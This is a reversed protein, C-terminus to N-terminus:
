PGYRVGTMILARNLRSWALQRANRPSFAELPGVGVGGVLLAPLWTSFFEPTTGTRTLLWGNSAAFVFGGVVLLPRYGHRAAVEDLALASTAVGCALSGVGFIALGVLFVRKRGFTDALRGAPVLLAAYVITFANLVWSLTTPLTDTFVSRLAPFAAM